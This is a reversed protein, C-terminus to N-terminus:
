YQRYTLRVTDLANIIATPLGAINYQYTFNTTNTQSQGPAIVVTQAVTGYNNPSSFFQVGFAPLPAVSKPFGPMATIPNVKNDYNSYWLTDVTVGRTFASDFEGTVNGSADYTYRNHAQLSPQGYIYEESIRGAANYTFAWSQSPTTNDGIYSKITDLLNDANYYYNYYSAYTMSVINIRIVEKNEYVVQYTSTDTEAGGYVRDTYSNLLHTNADYTFRVSDTVSGNYHNGYGVLEYNGPNTSPASAHDKRCAALVIFPILLVYIKKM